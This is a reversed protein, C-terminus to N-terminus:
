LEEDDADGDYNGCANGYGYGAGFGFVSDDEFELNVKNM